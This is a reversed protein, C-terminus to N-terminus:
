LKTKGNTLGYILIKILDHNIDDGNLLLYKLSEIIAAHYKNSETLKNLTDTIIQIDKKWQNM